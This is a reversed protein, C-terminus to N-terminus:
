STADKDDKGPNIIGMAMRTLEEFNYGGKGTIERVKNILADFAGPPEPGDRMCAFLYAPLFEELIKLFPEQDKKLDVNANTLVTIVRRTFNDVWYVCAPDITKALFDVVDKAVQEVPEINAAMLAISSAYFTLTM